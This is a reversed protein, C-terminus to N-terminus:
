LKIFSLFLSYKAFTISYNMLFQAFIVQEEDLQMAIM